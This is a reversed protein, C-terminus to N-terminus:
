AGFMHEIMPTVVIWLPMTAAFALTSVAVTSAGERVYINYRSSIIIGSFAPPLAIALVLMQLMVGHIGCVLGLALGIAPTLLNRYFVNWITEKGLSFKVTSLAIGAAFVALGSNAKAILSFCPDLEAPFRIGVLVMVVALIPVWVVPQKLSKIVADLNSNHAKKAPAPAAPTGKGAVAATGTAALKTKGAAEANLGKNVLYFGIPITIANVIIAVIAVVLGTQTGTGFVPDLVAFGLFGITPSGAILACVGAEAINHKFMKWCLFFSLMFMGIVVVLSVLTLPLDSFLMERTAKTISLFLAAPLAIDLVVKNLGQMQDNDFKHLKGGLYGLIMIAFIPLIDAIIINGIDGM